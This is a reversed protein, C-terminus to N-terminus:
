GCLDVFVEAVVVGGGHDVVGALEAVVGMAVVEAHGGVMTHIDAEIEVFLEFAAHAGDVDADVVDVVALVGIEDVLAVAVAVVGGVALVVVGGEDLQAEEGDDGGDGVVELELWPPM